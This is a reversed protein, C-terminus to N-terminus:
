HPTFYEIFHHIECLLSLHFIIEFNSMYFLVSIKHSKRGLVNIQKRFVDNHIEVAKSAFIVYLSLLTKGVRRCRSLSQMALTKFQLPGPLMASSCQIHQVGSSVTYRFRIQAAVVKEGHFM